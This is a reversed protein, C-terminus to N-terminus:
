SDAGRFAVGGPLDAHAVASNRALVCIATVGAVTLSDVHHLSAQAAGMASRGGRGPLRGVEPFGSKPFGCHSFVARGAFVPRAPSKEPGSLRRASSGAPRVAQPGHCMC